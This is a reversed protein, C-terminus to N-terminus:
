KSEKTRYYKRSPRKDRKKLTEQYFPVWPIIGSQYSMIELFTLNEKNTNKFKSSLSGLTNDFLFEGKDIEQILIPLTSLIKTLSAIDYVDSLKM